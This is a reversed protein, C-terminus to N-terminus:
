QAPSCAGAEEVPPLPVTKSHIKPNSYGNPRSDFRWGIRSGDMPQEQYTLSAMPQVIIKIILLLSCVVNLLEVLKVLFLAIDM